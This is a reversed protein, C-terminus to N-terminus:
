KQRKRIFCEEILEIIVNYITEWDNLEEITIEKYAMMLTRLGQKAYEILHEKNTDLLHQNHTIRTSIVSDAGKTFVFYRDDPDKVIVSM